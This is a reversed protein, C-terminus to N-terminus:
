KRKIGLIYHPRKNGSVGKQSFNKPFSYLIPFFGRLLKASNRRLLPSILDSGNEPAVHAHRFVRRPRGTHGLPARLLGHDGVLVHPASLM